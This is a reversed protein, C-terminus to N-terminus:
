AELLDVVLPHDALLELELRGVVFPVRVVVDVLRVLHLDRLGVVGFRPDEYVGPIVFRLFADHDLGAVSREIRRIRELMDQIFLSAPRRSM